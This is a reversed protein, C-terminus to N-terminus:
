NGMPGVSPWLCRSLGSTAQRTFLASLYCPNREKLSKVEQFSCYEELDMDFQRTMEALKADSPHKSEIIQGVRRVSALVRNTDLGIAM